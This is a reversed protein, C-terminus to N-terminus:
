TWRRKGNPCGHEHTPIGNIFLSQCQSCGLRWAQTSRNFWSTDFGLRILQRRYRARQRRTQAEQDVESSM